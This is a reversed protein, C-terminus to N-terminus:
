PFKEILLHSFALLKPAYIEVYFSFFFPSFPVPLRCFASFKIFLSFWSPFVGLIPFVPRSSCSFHCWNFVNLLIALFQLSKRLHDVLFIVAASIVMIIIAFQLKCYEIIVISTNKRLYHTENYRYFM